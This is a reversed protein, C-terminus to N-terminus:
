GESAPHLRGLKTRAATRRAAWSTVQREPTRGDGLRRREPVSLELEAMTPWNGHKPTYDVELTDALRKAEAAPFAADLSAPSRANLQDM